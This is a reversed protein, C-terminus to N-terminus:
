GMLELADDVARGEHIISRLAQIMARPNDRGWVNRGYAVGAGGADVADRTMQLVERNGSKEGGLIVVPIFTSSVVKEFSAKDGTYATKVIDAGLEAAKRVALRVLTPNTKAKYSGAVAPVVEDLYVIGQSECAMAVDEQMKTVESDTVDGFFTTKVGDAGLKAAYEVYRPDTPITLIVGIRGILVKAFKRALGPTVLVGDANGEVIQELVWEPKESGPLSGFVIGHDFAVLLSRKKKLLKAM